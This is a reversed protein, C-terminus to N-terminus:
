SSEEGNGAIDFIISVMAAMVAIGIGAEVLDILIGHLHPIGLAAEIAAYELFNGGMLLALFGIGAYIAIGIVSLWMIGRNDIRRRVNPMGFAIIMLIFSAAFVVGGQFGGGAGSAGHVIVYLAFIQIFPVALRSVTRIVVNEMM